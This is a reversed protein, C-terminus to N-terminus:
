RGIGFRTVIDDLSIGFIAKVMVEIDEPSGQFHMTFQEHELSEGPRLAAGPSSTEIEYFPGMVTGDDTPGDNYSNIVDGDFPNDQHGWQGNVYDADGEPLTYKLITLVGKESDYSGCLDKASGAPLGLKTRCKGDIKFYFVGSDEVLRDAPIKGFYEDNIKKGEFDKNYPIFVTTTPTPNFMGLLWISPIGTEKKWENHGMNKIVNVTRYAVSAVGEPIRIGLVNEMEGTGLLEVDRRIGINFVMDSASTLVCSHSFSVKSSDGSIVKYADTDIAAPVKWNSYVQEDGKKFYFSNPGGEPGIWFREEGGVPNFQPNVEGAEIFRYNIWGFSDGNEGAASSTMVRGQYGPAVLVRSQGDKSVLELTEIDHKHLFDCDYKYTGMEPAKEADSCAAALAAASAISLINLGKRFM